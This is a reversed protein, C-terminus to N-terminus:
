DKTAFRSARNRSVDEPNAQPDTSLYMPPRTKTSVAKPKEFKRLRAVCLRAPKYERIVYSDSQLGAADCMAEWDERRFSRLISVAGDHKVFRHWPMVGALLKFAYYPVPKRHLDNIFWGMAATKEQWKLFEVIEEDSLHHMTLSSIILDVGGEPVYDFANGAMFTVQGPMTAARAVRITDPNLDIGTLEVPMRRDLAWNYIRRLTDGYGCGVDLIRLPHSQRPMSSYVHGLWHLTPYYANVLVNVDAIGRLCQRLDEYSCPQDMLEPYRQLSARRAFNPM